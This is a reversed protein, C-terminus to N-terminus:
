QREIDQQTLEIMEIYKFFSLRPEAELAARYGAVVGMNDKYRAVTQDVLQRQVFADYTDVDIALLEEESPCPKEKYTWDIVHDCCSYGPTEGCYNGTSVDWVACTAEPVLIKIRNLLETSSMMLYVGRNRNLFGHRRGDISRRCNRQINHNWSYWFRSKCFINYGIYNRAAMVHSFRVTYAVSNGHFAQNVAAIANANADQFLAVTGTGGASAAFTVNVEIVLSHTVSTPTIALTMFQNGETIQPITDDVPIVTTGTAVAGTETSVRQLAAGVSTPALTAPSYSICTWVGAGLSMFVAGDNPQTTISAQGPLLILSANYTLTLSGTFRVFRVVGPAVTDFSTITTIGTIDISPALAAGIPTSTASAVSVKSWNLAGGVTTVTNTGGLTIASSAGGVNVATATATGVNVTTAATGGLSLTSAGKTDVRVPITSDTGAASLVVTGGAAANTVNLSNVASATKTFSLLNNGSSDQIPQDNLLKVGASSNSGLVVKGAAKSNLKLDINTDSGAAALIPGNGTTANTMNFYNVSNPTHTLLIMRAGQNDDIASLGLSGVLLTGSSVDFIRGTKLTLTTSNTATFYQELDVDSEGIVPDVTYLTSSPPNTSGAPAVVIKIAQGSPFFIPTPAGNYVPVGDANLTVPNAITNGSNDRHISALTTTGSNYFFVKGGSLPVGNDWFQLFPQPCISSM